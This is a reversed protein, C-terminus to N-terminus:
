RSRSMTKGVRVMLSRIALESSERSGSLSRICMGAGVVVCLQTRVRSEARIWIAKRGKWCRRRESSNVKRPEILRGTYAGVSAEGGTERGVACPKPDIHNAIGQM